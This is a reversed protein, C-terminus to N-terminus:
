WDFWLPAQDVFETVVLRSLLPLVILPSVVLGFIPLLTNRVSAFNDVKRPGWLQDLVAFLRSNLQWDDRDPPSKSLFAFSNWERPIWEIVLRINEIMCLRFLQKVDEGLALVASSKSQVRPANQNHTVDRM